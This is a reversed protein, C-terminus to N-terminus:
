FVNVKKLCRNSVDIHDQAGFRLGEDSSCAGEFSALYGISLVYCSDEIAMMIM